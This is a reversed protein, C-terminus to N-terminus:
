VPVSKDLLAIQQLIDANDKTKPSAMATSLTSSSGTSNLPPSKFEQYERALFTASRDITSAEKGALRAQKRATYGPTKPNGLMVTDVLSVSDPSVLVEWSPLDDRVKDSLAKWGTTQHVLRSPIVFKIEADEKTITAYSSDGRTDNTFLSAANKDWTTQSVKFWELISLLRGEGM